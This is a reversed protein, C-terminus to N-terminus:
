SFFRQSLCLRGTQNPAKNLKSLSVSASNLGTWDLEPLDQLLRVFSAGMCAHFRSRSPTLSRPMTRPNFQQMPRM